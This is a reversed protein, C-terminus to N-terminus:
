GHPLLRRLGRSAVAGRPKESGLGGGSAGRLQRLFFTWRDRPGRGAAAEIGLEGKGRCAGAGGAHATSEGAIEPAARVSGKRRCAGSRRSVSGRFIGHAFPGGVAVM